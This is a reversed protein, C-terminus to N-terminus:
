YLLTNVNPGHIFSRPVLSFGLMLAFWMIYPTQHYLGPHTANEVGSQGSRKEKAFSTQTRSPRMNTFAVARTSMADSLGRM